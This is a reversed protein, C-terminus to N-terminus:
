PSGTADEGDSASASELARALFSAIQARAVNNRPGFTRDGYGKTVGADAIANIADEHVSGEIDDFHDGRTPELELGRALFAAMQDRSIPEAPLFAGEEGKVIGHDALANIHEEHENGDVDDFRPQATGSEPELELARAMFAAMHDRRVPERPCYRSEECGAVIGREHLSLIAREHVSGDIDCFAVDCNEEPRDLRFTGSASRRGPSSFTFTYTGPQLEGTADWQSRATEGSGRDTRVVKSEPDLVELEWDAPSRLRGSFAFGDSVQGESLVASTPRVEPDLIVGGNTQQLENVDSRIDGFQGRVATGPCSTNGVDGHGVLTPVQQGNMTTEGDIDLHHVDFKWALVEVLSQRAEDSMGGGDGDCSSDFCGMLSVGFSGTNWGRAHAGIVGRELGGHRGEYVTGFRDILLNYGIDSWGLGRTHWDYIGRVVGPAESSSYDNAGATHHVVGLDVDEAYEPEQGRWSEDAGWEDRTTVDPSNVSAAARGPAASGEWADRLADMVRQPLSRSLGMSDILRVGVDEPSGGRVRIQLWSAEGVWVAESRRANPEADEAEASSEDPGHSAELPPAPEWPEWVRGHPSTRFSVRAGEPFEFGVTSFPIPTPVAISQLGGAGPDPGETAVQHVLITDETAPGELPLGDLREAVTPPPSTAGEAPLVPVGADTGLLLALLALVILSRRAM